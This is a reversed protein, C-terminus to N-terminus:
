PGPDGQPAGRRPFGHAPGGDERVARDPRALRGVGISACLTTFGTASASAITRRRAAFGSLRGRGSVSPTGTPTASGRAAHPPQAPAEPLTQHGQCSSIRVRVYLLLDGM